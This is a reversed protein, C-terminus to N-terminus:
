WELALDTAGLAVRTVTFVSAVHCESKWLPPRRRRECKRDTRKAVLVRRSLFVVLGVGACAVVLVDTDHHLCLGSLRDEAVSRNVHVLVHLGAGECQGSASGSGPVAALFQAPLFDGTMSRMRRSLWGGIPRSVRMVQLM